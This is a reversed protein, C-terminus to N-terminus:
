YYCQQVEADTILLTRENALRSMESHLEPLMPQQVAPLAATVNHWRSGTCLSTGLAARQAASPM